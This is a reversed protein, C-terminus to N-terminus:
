QLLKHATVRTWPVYPIPHVKIGLLVVLPLFCLMQPCGGTQKKDGYNQRKQLTGHVHNHSAYGKAQQGTESLPNTNVSGETRM